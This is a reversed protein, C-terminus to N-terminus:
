ALLLLRDWSPEVSTAAALLALAVGPAGTLFDPQDILRGGPGREQFGLPSQPDFLTLLQEVLRPIHSLILPDECDHAFRLCILLLGAVGHCLTPGDIRRLSWPRSLVAQMAELSVKMYREQQLASGALWLSRAVGPAGYCWATRSPPLQSWQEPSSAQEQPIVMPWNIGWEDSLQHQILWESGFALSELLGPHDYGALATLALAALIGPLGHALGCNFRGLPYQQRDRETVLLAAPCRWREAGAIQGPEVLLLLYGLLVHLAERAASDPATVSTLYGVIGAAGTILDFDSEAVGGEPPLCWSSHPRVQSALAQHLRALTRQAHRGNSSAQSVVFAVLSTGGFLGPSALASEQSRAALLKLYCQSTARWTQEPFCRDLYHYFLALEACAAPQSLDWAWPNPNLEQAHEAIQQVQEPDRMRSAIDLAIQQTRSQLPENLLAKWSARPTSVAPSGSSPTSEHSREMRDGQEFDRGTLGEVYLSEKHWRV